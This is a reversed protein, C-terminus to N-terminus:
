DQLFLSAFWGRKTEMPLIVLDMALSTTLLPNEISNPRMFKSKGHDLAKCDRLDVKWTGGTKIHLQAFSSKRQIMKMNSSFLTGIPEFLADLVGPQRRVDRTANFMAINQEFGKNSFADGIRVEFPLPRKGAWLRVPEIRLLPRGTGTPITYIRKIVDTAGWAAWSSLIAWMLATLLFVSAIRIDSKSPDTTFFGIQMAAICGLFFSAFICWAIYSRAKTAEYILTPSEASDLERLSAHVGTRGGPVYEFTPKLPSPPPAYVELPEEVVPQQPQVHRNVLPQQITTAPASPRSTRPTHTAPTSPATKPSHTEFPIHIYDQQEEALADKRQKKRTTASANLPKVVAKSPKRVALIPSSHLLRSQLPTCARLGFPQSFTSQLPPLLRFPRWLSAM